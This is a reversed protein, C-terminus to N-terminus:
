HLGYYTYVRHSGGVGITSEVVPLLAMGVVRWQTGSLSDDSCSLVVGGGTETTDFIGYNLGMNSSFSDLREIDNSGPTFPGGAALHAVFASGWEDTGISLASTSPTLSTGSNLTIGSIPTTQNIGTWSGIVMTTLSAGTVSCAATLNGSNPNALHFFKGNWITGLGTFSISPDTLTVGDYTASNITGDSIVFIGIWRNSGSVTFLGSTAEIRIANDFAIAM